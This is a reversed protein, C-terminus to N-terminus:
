RTSVSSASFYQRTSPAVSNLSEDDILLSAPVSCNPDEDKDLSISVLTRGCRVPALILRAVAAVVTNGACATSLVVRSSTLGLRRLAIIKVLKNEIAKITAAIVM